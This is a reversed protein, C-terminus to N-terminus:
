KFFEIDDIYVTRNNTEATTSGGSINSGSQNYMMRFTINKTNDFTQGEPLKYELIEWEGNFKPPTVSPYKTGGYDIRPYYENNNLYVLFRIGSYESVDFGAASLMVPAKLTFYGSTSGSGSVQDRLCQKSTNLGGVVPNEVLEIGPQNEKLNFWSGIAEAEFDDFLRGTATVTVRWSRKVTEGKANVAEYRLSFEGGM